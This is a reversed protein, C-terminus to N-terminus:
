VFAGAEMARRVFKEHASIRLDALVSAGIVADAGILYTGRRVGFGLPGDLEYAKTVAKDPDSLLTFRLRYKDAFRRHSDSDQPSVGVVRLKPRELDTQLDRFACAERTCGPTFDAPYFYLILARGGLLSALTHRHGEQDPLEFEPARSGAALM